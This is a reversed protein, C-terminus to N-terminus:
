HLRRTTDRVSPARWIVVRHAAGEQMQRLMHETRIGPLNAFADFLQDAGKATLPIALAEQGPAHLLWVPPESTPDLTLATLAELDIIGGSLPGFYSIRREVIQVVGPGGDGQRFRGRQIGTFVLAIGIALVLYGIWHLLGGGTFFGWYVGLAMVALGILAEQWQRITKMAEPRIM